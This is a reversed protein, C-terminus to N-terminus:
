GRRHQQPPPPGHDRGRRGAGPVGRQVAALGASIPLPDAFLLWSAVASLGVAVGAQQVRGTVARSPPSLPLPCLTTDYRDLAARALPTYM